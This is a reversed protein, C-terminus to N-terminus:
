QTAAKAATRMPFRVMWLIGGAVVLCISILQTGSMVGWVEGRGPDGRYFEIVYRQIGYMVMYLGIVQGEFKKRTALWYLIAFNVLEAVMEYLQTPHLRVGLPVGTVENALPNTFTVSWPVSTERGFCCGASFCGVRGIAHGLALGPAIVDAAQLFSIKHKRLYLIATLLALVLGGSFVGGAQLTSLSFIQGPHTSYYGWDTIIYLAKSGIIGALIVLGCLNWMQDPDLNQKKSLQLVVYLGLLMGSAVLFGYTAIHFSGIRILDPHM